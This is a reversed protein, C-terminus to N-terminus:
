NQEVQLANYTNKGLRKNIKNNFSIGKPSGKKCPSPKWQKYCNSSLGSAKHEYEWELGYVNIVL